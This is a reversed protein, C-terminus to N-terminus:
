GCGHEGRAIQVSIKSMLDSLAAQDAERVSAGFGQGWLYEPNAKIQEALKDAQAAVWLPVMLLLCTILKKM